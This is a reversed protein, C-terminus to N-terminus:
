SGHIERLHQANPTASVSIRRKQMAAAVQRQSCTSLNKGRTKQPMSRQQEYVGGSSLAELLDVPSEVRRQQLQVRRKPAVQLAEGVGHDLEIVKVLHM